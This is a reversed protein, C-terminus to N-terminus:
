RYHYLGDDKIGNKGVSQRIRVYSNNQSYVGLSTGLFLESNLM